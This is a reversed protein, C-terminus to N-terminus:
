LQVPIKNVHIVTTSIVIDWARSRKFLYFTHRRHRCYAADCAGSGSAAPSKGWGCEWVRVQAKSGQSPTEASFLLLM